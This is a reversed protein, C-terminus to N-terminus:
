MLGGGMEGAGERSFPFDGRPTVCMENCGEGGDRGLRVKIFGDGWQWRKKEESLPFGM